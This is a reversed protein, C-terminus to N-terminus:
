LYGRQKLSVYDNKGLIVHDLIPIGMLEGVEKMRQTVILDDNSPTPDGSPHFHCLAYTASNNLVAGKLIERPHLLSSNITGISVKEVGIIRNKTNLMIAFLIERDLDGIFPRAFDAIDKPSKLYEIESENDSQVIVQKIHQIERVMKKKRSKMPDKALEKLEDFSLPRNEKYSIGSHEVVEVWASELFEEETVGGLFSEYEGYAFELITRERVQARGYYTVTTYWSDTFVRYEQLEIKKSEKTNKM